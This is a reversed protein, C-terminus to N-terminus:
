PGPEKTYIVPITKQNQRLEIIHIIANEHIYKLM